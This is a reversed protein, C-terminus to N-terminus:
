YFEDRSERLSIGVTIDELLGEPLIVLAREGMFKLDLLAFSIFIIRIFSFM